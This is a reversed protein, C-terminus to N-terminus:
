EDGAEKNELLFCWHYTTFLKKAGLHKYFGDVKEDYVNVRLEKKASTAFLLMYNLIEKGLGIARFSTDIFLRRLLIFKEQILFSFFAIEKNTHSKIVYVLEEPNFWDYYQHNANLNLTENNHTFLKYLWRLNDEKDQSHQIYFIINNKRIFINDFFSNPVKLMKECLNLAFQYENRDNMECAMNSTIEHTKICIDKLLEDINNDWFNNYNTANKNQMQTKLHKKLLVCDKHKWFSVGFIAPSRHTGIEFRIITGNSNTIVNWEDSEPYAYDMVYYTSYEFIRFINKACVVDGEIIFSDDIYQILYNMTTLTNKNESSIHIITCSYKEHLYDFEQSEAPVAIIIEYIDLMHLMLITREINPIGLIPLLGKPLTIGSEFMRSSKGAALIIANM